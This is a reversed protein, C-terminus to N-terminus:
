AGYYSQERRSSAQRTRWVGIREEAIRMRYRLAESKETAERLGKLLEIYDPHSYAYAEREQGTKIGKEQAEVMKLAKLSKRYESLYLADAKAKAAEGSHNRWEHLLKEITDSM